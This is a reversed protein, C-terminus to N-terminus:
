LVQIHHKHGQRHVAGAESGQDGGLRQYGPKFFTKKLNLDSLVRVMFM